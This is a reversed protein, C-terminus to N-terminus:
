QWSRWNNKGKDKWEWMEKKEGREENIHYERYSNAYGMFMFKIGVFSTHLYHFSALLSMRYIIPSPTWFCWGWGGNNFPLDSNLYWSTLPMTRSYADQTPQNVGEWPKRGDISDQKLNFHPWLLFIFFTCRQYFPLLLEMRSLQDKINLPCPDFAVNSPVQLQYSSGSKRRDRRPAGTFDNSNVGVFRKTKFKCRNM